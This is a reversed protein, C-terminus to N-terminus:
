AAVLEPILRLPRLGGREALLEEELWADDFALRSRARWEQVRRQLTRLQVDGFQGPYRRQLEVFLSKATREPNAALWESVENWVDAFPDPRTRYTRPGKNPKTRRYKRKAPPATPDLVASPAASMSDGEDSATTSDVPNTFRIADKRGPFREIGPLVAHNWLAAQLSSLQELLQVPDLLKYITTLRTRREETLAGDTQLRQWPTQAV